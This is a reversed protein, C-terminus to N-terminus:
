YKKSKCVNTYDGRPKNNNSMALSTVIVGCTVGIMFHAWLPINIGAIIIMTSCSVSTLISLTLALTYNM